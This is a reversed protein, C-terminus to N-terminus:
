AMVINADFCLGTVYANWILSVKDSMPRDRNESLHEFVAECKRIVHILFYSNRGQHDLAWQVSGDRLWQATLALISRSYIV